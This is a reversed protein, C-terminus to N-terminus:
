NGRAERTPGSPAITRGEELTLEEESTLKEEFTFGEGEEMEGAALEGGVTFEETNAPVGIGEWRFPIGRAADPDPHDMLQFHVHPESSNGSNGCRALPQGTRVREGARVQLSGHQLHAYMAYTGDGLDLVLRNGTVRGAGAIERVVSEILMLYVLAPLSNRSLHDRQRDRAYVVTGDAVALLPEGFAPFDRNRRVIPWLWTFAPRAAGPKGEAVIDIAYTQGYTHTGHSPVKDAPSNLASWRGRVPPAVEIAAPRDAHHARGIRSVGLTVAVAVAGPLMTLWWSLSLVRFVDLLILAFVAPWSLRFLIMAQKRVPM